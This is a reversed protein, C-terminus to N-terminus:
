IIQRKVKYRKRGTLANGKESYSINDGKYRVEGRM